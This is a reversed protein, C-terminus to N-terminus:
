SAQDMGSAMSGDLWLVRVMQTRAALQEALAAARSAAAEATSVPAPAPAAKPAQFSRALRRASKFGFHLLM